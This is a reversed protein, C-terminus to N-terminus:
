LSFLGASAWIVTVDGGNTVINLATSDSRTDYTVILKSTTETGTDRFVWLRTITNGSAVATYTVDAADAKGDTVTKSSLAASTAVRTGAPVDSLNAHAASYTYAATVAVVKITNTSWDLGASLFAQRASLALTNAM